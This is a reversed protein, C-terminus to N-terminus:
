AAIWSGNPGRKLRQIPAGWETALNRLTSAIEAPSQKRGPKLLRNISAKSLTKQRAMWETAFALLVHRAYTAQEM